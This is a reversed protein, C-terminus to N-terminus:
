FPRIQKIYLLQTKGGKKDLKFEIDVAFEKFSKKSNWLRYFHRKLNKFAVTISRIEEKPLLPGQLLSSYRIYDVANARNYFDSFNDFYSICLETELSTDTEVVSNDGIQMNLIYGNKKQRDYLNTTIAVGNLEENPFARHILVAMAASQQNILCRKREEYARESWLSAWVKKIAKEIEQRNERQASTSQYLGAGSFDEIDEVNSSSRFRFSQFQPFKQLHNYVHDLLLADVPTRKIRQRIIKLSVESNSHNLSSILENIDARKCHERYAKMTICAAGEPTQFNFKENVKILESLNAAKYGTQYRNNYSCDSLDLFANGSSDCKLMAPKRNTKIHVKKITAKKITITKDSVSLDILKGRYKALSDINQMYVLPAKQSNALMVIHSLPCVRQTIIYGDAIPPSIFNKELVIIKPGATHEMENSLVGQANGESFIQYPSSKYLENPYLVYDKKLKATAREISETNCLIQLKLKPSTISQAVNYLKQLNDAKIDDGVSFDIYTTGNSLKNLNFCIFRREKNPIYNFRNFVGLRYIYGLEIKCYDFHKEYRPPIFHISTSAIDYLAKVSLTTPRLSSHNEIGWTAFLTSDILTPKYKQACVPTWLTILLSLLLGNSFWKLLM